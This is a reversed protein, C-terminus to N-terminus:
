YRMQNNNEVEVGPVYICIYAFVLLAPVMMEHDITPSCTFMLYHVWWATINPPYSGNRGCQWRAGM